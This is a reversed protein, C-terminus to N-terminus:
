SDSDQGGHTWDDDSAKEAELRGARSWKVGHVSRQARGVDARYSHLVVEREVRGVVELPRHFEGLHDPGVQLGNRTLELHAEILSDLNKDTDM